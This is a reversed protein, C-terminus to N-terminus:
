FAAHRGNSAAETFALWASRVQEVTRSGIARCHRLFDAVDPPATQEAEERTVPTWADDVVQWITHVRRRVSFGKRSVEVPIFLQFARVGEESAGCQDVIQEKAQELTDAHLNSVIRVGCRGLETLLRVDRGWIYADYPGSGIEYAVVCDGAHAKEWGTGPNTLLVRSGAPLHCLLASMITTKGAGGPRAGVLFSDGSRVRDVLWAAQGLTLTGAEILDVVSLMRGGRQNSRNVVTIVSDM